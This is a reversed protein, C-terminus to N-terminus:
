SKTSHQEVWLCLELLSKADVQDVFREARSLQEPTMLDKIIDIVNNAFYEFGIKAFVFPVAFVANTSVVRVGDVYGEGDCRFAVDTIGDDAWKYRYVLDFQGKRGAALTERYEYGHYDTLLHLFGVIQKGRDDNELFARANKVASQSIPRATLPSLTALGVLLGALALLGIAILLPKGGHRAPQTSHYMNTNNLAGGSLLDIWCNEHRLVDAGL